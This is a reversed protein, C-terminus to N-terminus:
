PNPRDPPARLRESARREIAVLQSLESVALRISARRARQRREWAGRERLGQPPQLPEADLLAEQALVSETLGDIRREAFRQLESWREHM